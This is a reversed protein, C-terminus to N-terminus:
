YLSEDPLKLLLHKRVYAALQERHPQYKVQWEGYWSQGVFRFREPVEERYLHLFLLRFAVRAPDDWPLQEGGWKGLSRQLAFFVAFNDLPDEYFEMTTEVREVLTPFDAKDPGMRGGCHAEYKYGDFRLACTDM